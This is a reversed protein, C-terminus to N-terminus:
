RRLAAVIAVDAAPMETVDMDAPATWRLANGECARPNGRWATVRFVHLRVAKAPYQWPIVLLPASATVGIGLEERLERVLAQEATEGPELKGGTFEWKGALHKGPLRRLMLVRGRADALIGVAVEVVAGEGAPLPHGCAPHPNPAERAGRGTM